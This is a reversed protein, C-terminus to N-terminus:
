GRRAEPPDFAVPFSEFGRLNLMFAAVRRVPPRDPVIRLCPLRELLRGITARAQLRALAAGPCLHIGRGFAMHQRANPREIDFRDPDAFIDPDRNASGFMLLITSGAPIRVRRLHTDTTSTRAQGLVPTDWRLTEEIAADLLGPRMRLRGLQTEHALLAWTCNGILGATLDRGAVMLQDCLGLIRSTGLRDGDVRSDALRSLLDEGPQRRRVELLYAFLSLLEAVTRRFRAEGAEDLEGMMARSYDSAWGLFLARESEPIGFLAALTLTPLPYAVAAILDAQGRRACGDILRDILQDVLERVIPEVWTILRSDFARGLLARYRIHERPNSAAEAVRGDPRRMRSQELDNAATFVRPASLVAVCDDFRTVVFLRKQQDWHM